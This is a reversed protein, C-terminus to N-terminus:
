GCFFRDLGDIADAARDLAANQEAGECVTAQEVALKLRETQPWARATATRVTLDDWLEDILVPGHFALGHAEAIDSLRAAASAARANGRTRNWRLLLWAWECQHGPEVLRGSDDPFPRYDRDFFERLAGSDSDIFHDLALAVIEDALNSWRASSGPLREFALCAELLHMHPNARLPLARATDEYFGAVPHKYYREMAALLEEAEQEARPRYVNERAAHALAFIVFANDYFDYGGDLLGGSARYSSIALHNSGICRDYLARLGHDVLTSNDGDWGLRGAACYCYVQRAVVRTRRPIDVPNGGLDLKEFFGGMHLDRGSTGWLPLAHDLVWTRAAEYRAFYRHTM